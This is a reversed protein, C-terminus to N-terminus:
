PGHRGVCYWHFFHIINYRVQGFGANILADFRTKMIENLDALSPGENPQDRLTALIGAEM